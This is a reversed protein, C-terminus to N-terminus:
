FLSSFPIRLRQRPQLQAEMLALVAIAEECHQCAQQVDVAIDDMARAEPLDTLADQHQL